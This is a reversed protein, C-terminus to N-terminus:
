LAAATWPSCHYLLRGLESWRWLVAQLSSRPRPHPSIVPSNPLSLVVTGLVKKPSNMPFGPETWSRSFSYVGLSFSGLLLYYLIVGLGPQPPHVVRYSPHPGLTPNNAWRGMEQREGQAHGKVKRKGGATGVCVLVQLGGEVELAARLAASPM